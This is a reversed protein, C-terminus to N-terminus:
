KGSLSMDRHWTGDGWSEHCDQVWVLCSSIWWTAKIFIMDWPPPRWSQPYHYSNRILWWWGGIMKSANEDMKSWKLNVLKPPYLYHTKMMMWRWNPDVYIQSINLFFHRHSFFRGLRTEAMKSPNRGVNKSASSIGAGLFCSRPRQCNPM